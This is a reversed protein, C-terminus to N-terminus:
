KYKQYERKNSALYVGLDLAAPFILYTSLIGNGFRTKCRRGAPIYSLAGAV